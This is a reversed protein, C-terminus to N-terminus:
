TSNVTLEITYGYACANYLQEWSKMPVSIFLSRLKEWFAKRNVFRKKAAAFLRCCLEQLQDVLFAMMMLYAFVVSLNQNGHGFNHEFHYGQNKLTNFTENEIKWRARGGRMIKDVNKETLPFDTVWSFHRQVVHEGLEWYELYNIAVDSNGDNLPVNNMFHFVKTIAGDQIEVKGMPGYTATDKINEMLAAHDGPKVGLIFHFDLERLLKIHPANSALSDEIITMDLHPHERRLDQLLRKAANRECDNKKRGDQKIIPEPALPVVYKLDPHVIVAALMQHYYTTSGDRHEKVCCNDCHIQHSSFYGTGDLSVLTSGRYFQFQELVKGRQAAAFLSKFAPRLSKPDVPDLIQRVQTDSPTKDLGYLVKLNHQVPLEHRSDKDFQLLSPYKMGFIALGSMLSDSLSYERQSSNRHDTVKDFSRRATLLLGPMSLTERLKPPDTREM